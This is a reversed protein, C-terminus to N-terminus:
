EADLSSSDVENLGYNGHVADFQEPRGKTLSSPCGFWWYGVPRPFPPDATDVKFSRDDFRYYEGAKFFYTYGNSYQLADDLNDPIGEWNSIPRPYSPKVPPRSDPDFRWYQSGKFFYIKGNGSWVFAADVNNPIGEFGKSIEKPYGPEMEDFSYRWYKSGKFFYTKGNEWTFAADINDPLGTWDQSVLRPYGPAISDDTLKWYSDGKFAFTTEGITLISDLTPESCIDRGGGPKSLIPRNTVPVNPVTQEPDKLKEGYIAQIAKKDDIDLELKEQYGRYFPAMLAKYEDSHSLGLSHGFEHAATQLLNTGRYSNITWSESNDFHADGGYVPFYAHALTGGPGDFPDGDGHEGKEFRIDIHVKGSQKQIFTLDTVTGWIELAKKIESDVESKKLLSATPYKSIKYSLERTKWRSGQLAYRKKRATAGAGVIDKVGCRPTAMLSITQNDLEGTLPLGAFSQFEMIYSKLGDQSLLNASKAQPSPARMYGYKMLYMMAGMLDQHGEGDQHGAGDQTPASFVPGLGLVLVTFVIMNQKTKFM